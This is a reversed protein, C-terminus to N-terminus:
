RRGAVIMVALSLRRASCCRRRDLQRTAAILELPTRSSPSWRTRAAARAASPRRLCPTGCGDATCSGAHRHEGAVAPRTVDPATVAAVLSQRTSDVTSHPRGRHARRHHLHRRRRGRDGERQAPHRTSRSDGQSVVAATNLIQDRRADGAARSPRCPSTAGDVVDRRARGARLPHRHPPPAATAGVDHHWPESVSSATPTRRTISPRPTSTARDVPALGANSVAHHKKLLERAARRPIQGRGRLPARRAPTRGADARVRRENAGADARPRLQVRRLRARRRSAGRASRRGRPDTARRRGARRRRACAAHRTWWRCARRATTPCSRRTGCSCSTTSTRPTTATSSTTAPSCSTSRAPTRSLATQVPEPAPPCAPARQPVPVRDLSLRQEAPQIWSLARAARIRARGTRTASSPPRRCGVGVLLM